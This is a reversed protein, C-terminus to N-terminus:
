GYREHHDEYIRVRGWLVRNELWHTLSEALERATDGAHFVLEKAYRDHNFVMILEIRGTGLLTGTYNTASSHVPIFKARVTTVAVIAWETPDKAM